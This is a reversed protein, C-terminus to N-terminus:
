AAQGIAKITQAEKTRFSVVWEQIQAAAFAAFMMVPMFVPQSYRTETDHFPLYIIATYILPVSFWLLQRQRLAAIVLGIGALIVLFGNLFFFMGKLAVFSGTGPAMWRPKFWFPCRTGFWLFPIREIWRGVIRLPEARLRVLFLQKMVADRNAFFNSEVMVKENADRYPIQPKNWPDGNWRHGLNEWSGVWLNEWMLGRTVPIFQGSVRYNRYTWPAVIALAAFLLILAQRLGSRAFTQRALSTLLAVFVFLILALYVDRALTLLGLAAGMAVWTFRNDTIWPLCFALMILLGCLPEAMLRPAFLAEFPSLAGIWLMVVAFRPNSRYFAFYLLVPTTLTLLIQILRSITKQYGFVQYIGALFFAQLPARSLTPPYPSEDSLSLSRHQILNSAMTVYDGEDHKSANYDVFGLACLRLALGILLPVFLKVWKRPLRNV